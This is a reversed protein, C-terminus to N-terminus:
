WHLLLFIYFVGAVSFWFSLSVVLTPMLALLLVVVLALFSFSVIRMGMLLVIWSCLVMAFARVLSPPFGVFWVYWALAGIAVIGVDFLGNRYPFYNAQLPRYLLMLLGYVVSWLIGLHFGSLAVLHSVGLRAVSARTESELPAALFIAQYFNAIQSNTHAQSIERSLFEYLGNQKTTQLVRLNTKAFFTGLYRWFTIKDDILIKARVQTNQVINTDLTTTYFLLNDQTKLKLLAYHRGNKFKKTQTLVTANTFYFPKSLFEQYELYSSLIRISFFLFIAGFVIWFSSKTAFLEPKNM